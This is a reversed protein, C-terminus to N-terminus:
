SPAIVMAILGHGKVSLSAEDSIVINSLGRSSPRLEEDRLLYRFGRMATVRCPGGLALLSCIYGRRGRLHLEDVVHYIELGDEISVAQCRSSALLLLNTIEHDIRGGLAGYVYILAPSRAESERLALEFDSFDKERSYRRLEIGQLDPQEGLSDLDGILLDPRVGARRATEFGGNACIVLDGQERKRRYHDRYCSVSGGESNLFIFVKM